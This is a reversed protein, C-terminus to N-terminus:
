GEGRQIAIVKKLRDSAQSTDPQSTKSRSTLETAGGETDEERVMRPRRTVKGPNPKPEPRPQPEVHVCEYNFAEMIMRSTEDRYTQPDLAAREPHHAFLHELATAAEGGPTMPWHKIQMLYRVVAQGALDSRELGRLTVLLTKDGGDLLARTQHRLDENISM